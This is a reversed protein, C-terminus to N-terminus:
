GECVFHHLKEIPPLTWFSGEILCLGELGCATRIVKFSSCRSCYPLFIIFHGADTFMEEIDIIILVYHMINLICLSLFCM